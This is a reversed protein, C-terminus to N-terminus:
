FQIGILKLQASTVPLTEIQQINFLKPDPVKADKETHPLPLRSLSDANAHAQTPRFVIRYNYGALLLAWRQLRAAALPPISKNSGFIATLPKHDTYLIFSRGYLYSHFKQVGYVLSLAEKELQAYNCESTSLTRSAYSIPRESGDPLIHSIVAGIGYSSADGALRLPLKPDYHALVTTSSLQKKAQKFANACDKSWRWSIGKKLLENLPHLMTALNPIFKGYYHLLGLFSRLEQQNHPTPAEQIAQVKKPSTHLGEADITHGLYEVSSQLFVCKNANVRVGYEQLRSLVKELNRLHEERNAGTILIDDLYCLVQPIGQLISDMARQFIAPASAIGFPLRSYCYLGKHTNITVYKRSEQDLMIQQYAHKLDLKSFKQGGSLSTFLDEPKPLPHQDVELNANVTVKYDGCVRIQGDGKPVPVIPAAWESHEVKEVIGERELRELEKEISEKIAYPVSRPRHFVPNVGSKVRLSATFKKMTGLGEAFVQKYKNKLMQVRSLDTDLTAIGITKWDLQFYQLWDRGFLNPGGGKVVMLTLYHSQDKYEVKAKMEGLVSMAEGTYTRLVVSPATLSVMPYLRNKTTESIISVAAGTDVEMQLPKDNIKMKVWIPHSSKNHVRLVPLEESDSTDEAQVWQTKKHPNGSSPSDGKQQRPKCVKSIHGKKNCKRCVASKFYCEKPLHNKKGCHYCPKNPANGGNAKAATSSHIAQISPAQGQLEHSDRTAAEMGKAIDVAQTLTLDRQSLLKRQISESKLGCVLRDRLADNLFEGFSCHTALRRLEALFESITEEPGQSRRHFRFREAIVIKSPEFHKRLEESLVDFGKESPKAPAVLSRLIAYTKSGIVSLFVPVKKGDAIENAAFFLEIRELYSEITEEEPHFERIRGYSTM